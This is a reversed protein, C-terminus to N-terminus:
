SRQYQIQDILLDLLRGAARVKENDFSRIRLVLRSSELKLSESVLKFSSSASRPMQKQSSSRSRRTNTHDGESAELVSAGNANLQPATLTGCKREFAEISRHLDVVDRWSSCVMDEWRLRMHTLDHETRRERLLRLLKDLAFVTELALELLDTDSDSLHRKSVAKAVSRLRKM